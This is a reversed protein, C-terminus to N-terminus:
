RVPGLQWPISFYTSYIYCYHGSIYPLLTTCFSCIALSYYSFCSRLECNSELVEQVAQQFEPENPNKKQVLSMYENYYSMVVGQVAM